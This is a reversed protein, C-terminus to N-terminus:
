DVFLHVLRYTEFKDVSHTFSQDQPRGHYSLGRGESGVVVHGDVRGDPEELENVALGFYVGGARGSELQYTPM